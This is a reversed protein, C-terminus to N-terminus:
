ANRIPLRKEQQRALRWSFSAFLMFSKAEQSARGQLWFRSAPLAM